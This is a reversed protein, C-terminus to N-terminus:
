RERWIRDLERDNEAVEPPTLARVAHQYADRARRQTDRITRTVLESLASSDYRQLVGDRLRLRTIRGSPTVRVQVRRDSSLGEVEVSALRAAEVAVADMADAAARAV